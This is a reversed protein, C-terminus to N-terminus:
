RRKCRLIVSDLCLTKALVHAVKYHCSFMKVIKFSSSMSQRCLFMGDPIFRRLVDIM